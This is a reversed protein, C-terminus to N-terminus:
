PGVVGHNLVGSVPVELFQEAAPHTEDFVRRAEQVLLDHCDVPQPAGDSRSIEVIAGELGIVLDSHREDVGRGRLPEVPNELAIRGIAALDFASVLFQGNLGVLSSLVQLYDDPRLATKVSSISPFYVPLPLERQGVRLSTPRTVAM